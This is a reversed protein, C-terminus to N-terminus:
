SEKKQLKQISKPLSLFAFHACMYIDTSPLANLILVGAPFGMLVAYACWVQALTMSYIAEIAHIQEKWINFIFRNLNM